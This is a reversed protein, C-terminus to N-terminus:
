DPDHEIHIHDGEDIVDYDDGLRVFLEDVIAEVQGKTYIRTRMDFAKGQYHLSKSMHAGDICSTVVMELGTLQQSVDDAIQMANTVWASMRITEPKGAKYKLCEIICGDKFKM